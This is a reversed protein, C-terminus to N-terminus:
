CYKSKLDFVYKKAYSKLGEM